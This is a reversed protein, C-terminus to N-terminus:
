NLGLNKLFRASNPERGLFAKLQEYHDMMKGKELIIERYRGGVESNLLGKEEFVSFMDSAYVDSWMYGYYGADYGGMLHGFSAPSNTNEPFPMGFMEEFLKNYEATVKHEGAVTHLNLDFIGFFLQRMNLYGQNFDRAQLMSALLTDPLKEKTEYHGSIVKLVDKDWVWNELMQSPAEVFDRSVSTGSLSAFPARTLTQHMIHGFEHFVTEVESHTLLSPTKGDASPPTFNAVISSFPYNYSGTYDLRGSRLTFAAAHSYKKARPYFDAYFHGILKATRRDYIRYLKVDPNWVAETTTLTDVEQYDVCLLNSYVEFMGKVVQESPFYKRIKQNDLKLNDKRYQYELYRIDWADLATAAADLKQKHQLLTALDSNLKPEMKTRLDTLFNKVTDANKAMRTNTRYDAWTAYGMLAAIKQRLSVAKEMLLANEEGARSEYAVMMRKRSESLSANQMVMLYDPGKTTVIFNGDADKQFANFASEPLGVLEDKTFTVTTTDAAYNESFKAEADALEKSLQIFETRKDDALKLGNNEFSTITDAFLREQEAGAPKMDKVADYLEKRTSIDVYYTSLEEECTAAEDRQAANTSVYKMFTLTNTQDNLDAVANELALVTNGFTRNEPKLKAIAELKKTATKMAKACLAGIEGAAYDSRVLAAEDASAEALEALKLPAPCATTAKSTSSSSNSPKNTVTPPKKGKSCASMGLALATFLVLSHRYM